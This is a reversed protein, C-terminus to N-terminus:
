GRVKGNEEPPQMNRSKPEHVPIPYVDWLSLRKPGPDLHKFQQHDEENSEEMLYKLLVDRDRHAETNNVYIRHKCAIHRRYIERLEFRTM